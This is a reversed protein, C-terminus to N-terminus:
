PVRLYEGSVKLHGPILASLSLKKPGHHSKGLGAAFVIAYKM